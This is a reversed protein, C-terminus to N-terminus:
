GLFRKIPGTQNIGFKDLGTDLDGFHSIGNGYANLLTTYWNGLTKHEPQGYNPLRIYRRGLELQANKGALVIFPYETGHSHHTEGSDPFYCLMTNDFMCGKGEPVGKLRTV